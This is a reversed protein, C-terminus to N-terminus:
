DTAAMAWASPQVSRVTRFRRCRSTVLSCASEAASAQPQPSTQRRPPRQRREAAADTPDPGASASSRAGASRRGGQVVDGPHTAHVMQGNGIYMAVHGIPNYYFVLDGPQIDGQRCTPCRPSSSVPVPAAHRRGAQGWAWATLGSCDFAVGPIATAYRYGVGLQSM